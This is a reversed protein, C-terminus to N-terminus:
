KSTSVATSDAFIQAIEPDMQIFMQQEEAVKQNRRKIQQDVFAKFDADACSYIVCAIYSRPLKQIEKEILPFYQLIHGNQWLSAWALLDKIYLGEFYPLQITKVANARLKLRKNAVMDRLHWVTVTGKPPLFISCDTALFRYVACLDSM